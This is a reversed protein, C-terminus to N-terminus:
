FLSKYDESELIPVLAVPKMWIWIVVALGTVVSCAWVLSIAQTWPLSGAIWAVLGGTTMHITGIIASAVGAQMARGELVLSFGAPFVIGQGVAYVTLALSWLWLNPWWLTCVFLLM